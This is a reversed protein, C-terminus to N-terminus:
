KGILDSIIKKRFRPYKGNNARSRSTRQGGQGKPSRIQTHDTQIFRDTGINLIKCYTKVLIGTTM